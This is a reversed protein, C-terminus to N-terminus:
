DLPLLKRAEENADFVIGREKLWQPMEKGHLEGASRQTEQRISILVLVYLPDEIDSESLLTVQEATAELLWIEKKHFSALEQPVPLARIDAALARLPEVAPELKKLHEANNSTFSEEIIKAEDVRQVAPIHKTYLASLGNIYSKVAQIDSVNLISIEDDSVASETYHPILRKLESILRGLEETAQLSRDPTLITEIGKNQFVTGLITRTLNGDKVIRRLIGYKENRIEESSALIFLDDPGPKAPDRGLRVEEGDVTGDGDTDPNDPDTKFIVEEWDNLGDNDRDSQIAALTEGHRTDKALREQPKSLAYNRWLIFVSMSVSIALVFGVVFTTKNPRSFRSVFVM